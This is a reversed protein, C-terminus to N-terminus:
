WVLNHDEYVRVGKYKIVVTYHSRIRRGFRWLFLKLGLKTWYKKRKVGRGNLWYDVTWPRM